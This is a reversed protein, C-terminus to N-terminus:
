LAKMVIFVGLGPISLAKIAILGWVFKFNKVVILVGFGPIPLKETCHPGWM